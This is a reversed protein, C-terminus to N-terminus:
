SWGSPTMMTSPPAAADFCCTITCSPQTRQPRELPVVDCLCRVFVDATVRVRLWAYLHRYWEGQRLSAVGSMAAASRASPQGARCFIRPTHARRRLSQRSVPVRQEPWMFVERSRRLGAHPRQSCIFPGLDEHAEPRSRVVGRPSSTDLAGAAHVPPVNIPEAASQVGFARTPRAM